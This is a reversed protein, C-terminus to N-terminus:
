AFYGNDRMDQLLGPGSPNWDMAQRTITSSTPRDASVFNALWGFQAPAEAQSLSRVPVGLGAGITEAIARMPIGQEASGHLRSGPAANELAARGVSPGNGCQQLRIARRWVKGSM